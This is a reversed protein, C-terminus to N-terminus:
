QWLLVPSNEYMKVALYRLHSCLMSKCWSQRFYNAWPHGNQLSHNWESWGCTGLVSSPAKRWDERGEEQHGERLLASAQHQLLHTPLAIGWFCPLCFAAAVESGCSATPLHSRLGGARQSGRWQKWLGDSRSSPAPRPPLSQRGSPFRWSLLERLRWLAQSHQLM